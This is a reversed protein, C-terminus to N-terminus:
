NLPIAIFIHTGKGEESEVRITGNLIEVRSYINKWGLGQSKAIQTVDFGRGDDTITVELKGQLKQMKVVVNAAQAHRVINNLVEQVIRYLAIEM